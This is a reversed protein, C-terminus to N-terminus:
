PRAVIPWEWKFDDQFNRRTNKNRMKNNNENDVDSFVLKLLHNFTCIPCPVQSIDSPIKKRFEQLLFHKTNHLPITCTTRTTKSSNNTLTGFCQNMRKDFEVLIEEELIRRPFIHGCTFAKVHTELPDSKGIEVTTHPSITVVSRELTNKIVNEKIMALLQRPLFTMSSSDSLENETATTNFTTKNNEELYSVCIHFLFQGSFPIEHCKRFWEKEREDFGNQLTSSSSSGSGMISEVVDSFFILTLLNSLRSYVNPDILFVELSAKDLGYEFWKVLIRALISAKIQISVEKTSKVVSSEVPDNLVLSHLLDFLEKEQNETISSISSHRDRTSSSLRGRSDTSSNRSDMQFPQHARLRCEVADIMEGHAEYVSAAANWNDYDACRAVLIPPRYQNVFFRLLAELVEQSFEADVQEQEEMEEDVVNQNRHFNLRLLITLFLEVQEEIGVNMYEAHSVDGPRPISYSGGLSNKSCKAIRPDVIRALQQCIDVSLCPLQRLIWDRQAMLLDFSSEEKSTALLVEVQLEVSFSRLISRYAPSAIVHAYGEGILTKIMKLSVFSGLNATLLKDFALAVEKRSMGVLLVIEVQQHLICLDLIDETSYDENTHLFKELWIQQKDIAQHNSLEPSNCITHDQALQEDLLLEVLLLAVRKRESTDVHLSSSSSTKPLIEADEEPAEDGSPALISQAYQIAYKSGGITKLQQIAKSPLVRSVHYLDRVLEFLPSSLEKDNDLESVMDNPPPLNLVGKLINECLTDAVVECLSPMDIGLAYGISLGDRLSITRGQLANFLTLRTWQPRCEYIHHDTQLIYIIQAAMTRRHLDGSDSTSSVVPATTQMVSRIKENDHLLLYHVIHAVEVQTDDGDIGPLQRSPLSVWSSINRTKRTEKNRATAQLLMLDSSCFSLEVEELEEEDNGDEELQEQLQLRSQRHSTSSSRARILPPVRYEGKLKWQFNSFL